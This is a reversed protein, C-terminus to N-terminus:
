QLKNAIPNPTSSLFPIRNRQDQLIRSKEQVSFIGLIGLISLAMSADQRPEIVRSHGDNTEVLIPTAITATGIQSPFPSIKQM